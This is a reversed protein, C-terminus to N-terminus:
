KKKHRNKFTEFKKKNESSFKTHNLVKDYIKKIDNEPLITSNGTIQFKINLTIPKGEDDEIEINHRFREIGNKGYFTTHKTKQTTGPIVAFEEIGCPNTIKDVVIVPRSKSNPKQSKKYPLYLDNSELTQGCPVKKNKKIPGEILKDEITEITNEIKIDKNISVDKCDHPRSSKKKKPTQKKTGKKATTVKKTITKKTAPKKAPTKGTIKKAPKKSVAKKSKNKPTQTKNTKKM